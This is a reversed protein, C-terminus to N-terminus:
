QQLCRRISELPVGRFTVYNAIEEATFGKSGLDRAVKELKPELAASGADAPLPAAAGPNKKPIEPVPDGAVTAPVRHPKKGGSSEGNAAVRAQTGAVTAPVGGQSGAIIAAVRAPLTARRIKLWCDRGRGKTREEIWGEVALAKLATRVTRESLASRTALREAGAYSELTTSDMDATLALAVLRAASTSPGHESLVADRYEHRSNPARSV